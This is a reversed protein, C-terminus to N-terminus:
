FRHTQLKPLVVQIRAADDFLVLADTDGLADKFCEDGPRRTRAGTAVAVNDCSYELKVETQSTQGAPLFVPRALTAYSEALVHSGSLRKM